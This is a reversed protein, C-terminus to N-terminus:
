RNHNWNVLKTYFSVTSAKRTPVYEVKARGLQRHEIAKDLSELFENLQHKTRSKGIRLTLWGHTALYETKIHDRKIATKTSHNKYGDIEICIRAALHAADMRFRRPLIMLESAIDGGHLWHGYKRILARLVIRGPEPDQEYEPFLCFNEVSNNTAKNQNVPQSKVEVSNFQSELQKRVYPSMGKVRKVDVMSKFKM